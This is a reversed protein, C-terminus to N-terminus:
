KVKFCVDSSELLDKLNKELSIDKLSKDSTVAVKKGENCLKRITYYLELQVSKKNELLQINEIEISDTNTYRNLIKDMQNSRICEVLENEFDISSIKM